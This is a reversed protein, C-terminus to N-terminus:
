NCFFYAYRGMNSHVINNKRCFPIKTDEISHTFTLSDANTADIQIKGFTKLYNFYNRTMKKFVVNRKRSRPIKRLKNINKKNLISKSGPKCIDVLKISQDVVNEFNSPSRWKQSILRGFYFFLM